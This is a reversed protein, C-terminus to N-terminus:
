ALRTAYSEVVVISADEHFSSLKLHQSILIRPGARISSPQTELCAVSTILKRMQKTHIIDSTRWRLSISLTVLSIVGSLAISQLTLPWEALEKQKDKHM